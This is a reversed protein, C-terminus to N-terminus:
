YRECHDTFRAHIREAVDYRLSQWRTALRDRRSAPPFHAFYWARRAHFKAIDEPSTQGSDVLTEWTVPFMATIETLSRM